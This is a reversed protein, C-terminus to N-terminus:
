SIESTLIDWYKHNIFSMITYIIVKDFGLGYEKMQIVLAHIYEMLWELFDHHTKMPENPAWNIETYSHM